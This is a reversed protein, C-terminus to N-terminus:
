RSWFSNVPASAPRPEIVWVGASCRAVSRATKAAYRDISDPAGTANQSDPFRGAAAPKAGRRFREMREGEAPNRRSPTRRPPYGHRILRNEPRGCHGPTLRDPLLFRGRGLSAADRLPQFSQCPNEIELGLERRLFNFWRRVVGLEFNVTAPRVKRGAGTQGAPEEVRALKCAEIDARTIAEVFQRRGLLRQFHALVARYRAVTKPQDPSHIQVHALFQEVAFAIPTGPRMWPGPAPWQPWAGHTPSPPQPPWGMGSGYPAPPMSAEQLSSQAPTQWAVGQQFAAGSASTQELTLAGAAGAPADPESGLVVEGALELQKRRFAHLVEAPTQGASERRRPPGEWWEILYLGPRPDWVWSNGKRPLSVFQWRGPSLRVKKLVRVSKRLKMPGVRPTSKRTKASVLLM